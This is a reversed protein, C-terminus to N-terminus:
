ARNLPGDSSALGPHLSAYLSRQSRPLARRRLVRAFDELSARAWDRSREPFAFAVLLQRLLAHALPFSHHQFRPFPSSKATWFTQALGTTSARPMVRRTPFLAFAVPEDRYLHHRIRWVEGAGSLEISGSFWRWVKQVPWHLRRHCLRRDAAPKHSLQNHISSLPRSHTLLAVVPHTRCHPFGYHGRSGIGLLRSTSRAPRGDLQSNYAMEGALPARTTLLVFVFHETEEGDLSPAPKKTRIRGVGRKLECLVFVIDTPPIRSFDDVPPRHLRRPINTRLRLGGDANSRVDEDWNSRSDPQKLLSPPRICAVRFLSLQFLM